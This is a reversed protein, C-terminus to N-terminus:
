SQQERAEDEFRISMYSVHGLSKTVYDHPGVVTIIAEMGENDVGEVCLSFGTVMDLPLKGENALQQLANLIEESPTEM